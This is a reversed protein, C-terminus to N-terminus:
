NAHFRGFWGRTQEFLQERMKPTDDFYHTAGKLIMLEKPENAGEIYRKAGPVLAGNGAVIIKLPVRFDTTLSGWSLSDAEEAMAKGLVVSTGWRMFYGNLSQVFTGGPFGYKKKTFSLDYSPDWLVAAEFDQEQSLLVTPGGFSHGAVYIKKVGLKRFYAIVADLDEAHTKLTCDILQRADKQWGYLNFRFTSFGREFFWQCAQVHLEDHVDGPLGHVTILLPRRLSGHLRGYISLRKALPIRLDEEM